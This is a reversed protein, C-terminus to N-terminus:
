FWGKLILKLEKKMNGSSVFGDDHVLGYQGWYSPGYQLYFETNGDTRYQLESFISFRSGVRDDVIMGRTFIKWKDSLNVSLEIGAVYREWSEGLDKVKFQALLKALSNEVSLESFLDYHKYSQGQWKEDKKNLSVKGKFGNIFEIYIEAYLNKTPDFIEKSVLTGNSFVIVSDSVIKQYESYNLVVTIAKKPVLYHSNIWYGYRNYQNDGMYNRYTSGYSFIGPNIFWYGTSIGGLKFGRFESKLAINSKYLEAKSYSNTLSTIASDGPVLSIAVESNLYYKGIALKIDNAIVQNFDNKKASSYNKRQFFIGFNLKNKLLSQRIRLLHVDDGDGQSFDSFVYTMSGRYPHWLDFRAGQGNGDNNISGSNVIGLMSGDTWYHRSERTFLTSSLGINEGEERFGIHGESFVALSRTSESYDKNSYFKIYYDSNNTPNGYLRNEFYLNPSWINWGFADSESGRGFQGEYFGEMRMTSLLFSSFLFFIIFFKKM